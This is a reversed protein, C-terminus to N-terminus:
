EEDERGGNEIVAILRSIGLRDLSDLERVKSLIGLAMETEGLRAHLYGVAKMAFLYFRPGSEYESFGADKPSVDDFLSPLGLHAGMIRAAKWAFPIAERQRGKYFHFKYCGLVVPLCDGYVRDAEKLYGLAVETEAYSRAAQWLLEEAEPPVPPLGGGAMEEWPAELLDPGEM